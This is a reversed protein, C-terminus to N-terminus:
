KGHNEMRERMKEKLKKKARSRIQRINERSTGLQRALEKDSLEFYVSGLIVEKQILDLEMVLEFLHRREEDLILTELLEPGPDAMEENLKGSAFRKKQKYLNFYENQLVRTLWYALSGGEQYSLFAKLFTNQALDEADQTNKCLSLAYLYLRKYFMQYIEQFIDQEM